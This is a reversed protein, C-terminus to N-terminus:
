RILVVMEGDDKVRGTCSSANKVGLVCEFHYFIKCSEEGDRVKQSLSLASKKMRQVSHHPNRFPRTHALLAPYVM